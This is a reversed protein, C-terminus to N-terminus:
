PALQFRRRATALVAGAADYLEVELLHEGPALGALDLRHRYPANMAARPTGDVRLLAFRATESFVDCVVLMEGGVRQAPSPHRLRLLQGTTDPRTAAAVPREPAPRIAVRPQGDRMPNPLAAAAEPLWQEELVATIEGAGEPVRNAEVDAGRIELWLRMSVRSRLPLGTDLSHLSEGSALGRLRVGATLLGQETAPTIPPITVDTAIRACRQGLHETIELLRSEITLVAREQPLSVEAQTRWRAGVRM